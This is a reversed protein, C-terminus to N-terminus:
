VDNTKSDIDLQELKKDLALLDNYIPKWTQSVHSVVLM